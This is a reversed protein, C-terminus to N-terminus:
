QKTNLTKLNKPLNLLKNLSCFLTKLEPFYPLKYKWSKIEKLVTKLALFYKLINRKKCLQLQLLSPLISDQLVNISWSTPFHTEQDGAPLTGLYCSDYRKQISSQCAQRAVFLQPHHLCWHDCDPTQHTDPLLVKRWLQIQFHYFQGKNSFNFM